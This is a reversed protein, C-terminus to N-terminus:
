VVSLGFILKIAEEENGNCKKLAEVCSDFNEVGVKEAM